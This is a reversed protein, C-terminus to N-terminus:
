EWVRGFRWWVGAFEGSVRCLTSFNGVVFLESRRTRQLGIASLNDGTRLLDMCAQMPSIQDISSSRSIRNLNWLTNPNSRGKTMSEHNEEAGASM